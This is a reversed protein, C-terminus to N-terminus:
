SATLGRTRPACSHNQAVLDECDQHRQRLNKITDEMEHQFIEFAGVNVQSQVCLKLEPLEAATLFMAFCKSTGANTGLSSEICCWIKLHLVLTLM